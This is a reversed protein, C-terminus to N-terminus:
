FTKYSRTESVVTFGRVGGLFFLRGSSNTEKKTGFLIYKRCFMLFSLSPLNWECELSERRGSVSKKFFHTIRLM